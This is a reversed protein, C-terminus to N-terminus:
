PDFTGRSLLLGQGSQGQFLVNDDGIGWSGTQAQFQVGFWGDKPVGQACVINSNLRFRIQRNVYELM